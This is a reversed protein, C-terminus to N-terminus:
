NILSSYVKLYDEYILLRCTVNDRVLGIQICLSNSNYYEIEWGNFLLIHFYKSSSQLSSYYNFPIDMVIGEIESPMLFGDGTEFVDFILPLRLAEKTSQVPQIFRERGNVTIKEYGNIGQVIRFIDSPFYNEEVIIQNQEIEQEAYLEIAFINLIIATIFLFIVGKRM